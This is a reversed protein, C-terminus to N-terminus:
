SFIVPHQPFCEALIYFLVAKNSQHQYECQRKSREVNSQMIQIHATSAQISVVFALNATEIM